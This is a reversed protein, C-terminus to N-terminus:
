LEHEERIADPKESVYNMVLRGLEVAFVDLPGTLHEIPLGMAKTFALLNMINLAGNGPKAGTMQQMVGASLGTLKMAEKITLNRVERVIRIRNKLAEPSM